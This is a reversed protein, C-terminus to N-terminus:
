GHFQRRWVSLRTIIIDTIKKAPSMTLVNVGCGCLWKVASRALRDEPDDGIITIVACDSGGACAWYAGYFGNLEVDFHLHKM